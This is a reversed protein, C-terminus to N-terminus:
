IRKAIDPTDPPQYNSVYGQHTVPLNPAMVPPYPIYFPYPLTLPPAFHVFHVPLGIPQLLPAPQSAVPFPVLMPPSYPLSVEVPIHLVPPPPPESRHLTRHTSQVHDDARESCCAPSKGVNESRHQKRRPDDVYIGPIFAPPDGVNSSPTRDITLSKHIDPLNGTDQVGQRETTRRVKLLKLDNSYEPSRQFADSFQCDFVVGEILRQYVFKVCNINEELSSFSLFGYGCNRGDQKSTCQQRIVVDLITGCFSLAEKVIAETLFIQNEVVKFSFHIPGSPTPQISVGRHFNQAQITRGQLVTGHLKRIVAEVDTTAPMKVLASHFIRKTKFEDLVEVFVPQLSCQDLLVETIVRRSAGYPLSNLVVTNEASWDSAMMAAAVADFSREDRGEKKM